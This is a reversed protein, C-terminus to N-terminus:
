SLRIKLELEASFSFIPQLIYNDDKDIQPRLLM